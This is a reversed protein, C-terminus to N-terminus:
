ESRLAVLPDVQAARRAPLWAAIGAVVTLVALAAGLSMSDLPRVGFLLSGIIQGIALVLPVGALTGLVLLLGAERLILRVIRGSGAGLALRIGLEKTRRSVTNSVVGYLGVAVLVLAVLGFTSSLVALTRERILFQDLVAEVTRVNFVPVDADIRRAAEEIAAQLVVPPIAARVHLVGEAAPVYMMQQDLDRLSSAASDRVVGVIEFRM